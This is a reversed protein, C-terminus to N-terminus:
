HVKKRSTYKSKKNKTKHIKIIFLQEEGVEPVYHLDEEEMEVHNKQNGDKCACQFIKDFFIHIYKLKKQIVNM